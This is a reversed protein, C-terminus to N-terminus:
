FPSVGHLVVEYNYLKMLKQYLFESLTTRSVWLIAISVVYEGVIHYSSEPDWRETLRKNSCMAIPSSWSRQIQDFKPM